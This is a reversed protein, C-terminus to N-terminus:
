YNATGRVPIETFASAAKRVLSEIVGESFFFLAM